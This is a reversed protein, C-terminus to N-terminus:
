SITSFVSDVLMVVAFLPGVFALLANLKLPDFLFTMVAGVQGNPTVEHSKHLSAPPV